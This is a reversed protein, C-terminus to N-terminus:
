HAFTVSASGGERRTSSRRRSWRGQRSRGCRGYSCSLILRRDERADFELCAFNSTRPRTLRRFRGLCAENRSLVTRRWRRPAAQCPPRGSVDCSRRTCRIRGVVRRRMRRRGVRWAIRRMRRTIRRGRVAVVRRLVVVRRVARRRVGISAWRVRVVRGGVGRRRRVRGIRRRRGRLRLRLRVDRRVRGSGAEVGSEGHRGHLDAQGDDRL